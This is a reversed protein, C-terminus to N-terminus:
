DGFIEFLERVMAEENDSDSNTYSSNKEDSECIFDDATGEMVNIVFCKKFTKVIMEKAVSVLLNQIVLHIELFKSSVGNRRKLTM